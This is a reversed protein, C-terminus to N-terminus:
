SKYIYVRQLASKGHIKGHNRGNIMEPSDLNERSPCTAVWAQACGRVVFEMLEVVQVRLSSRPSDPKSGICDLRLSSASLLVQNIHMGGRAFTSLLGASTLPSWFM